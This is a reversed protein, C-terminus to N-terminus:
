DFESDGLGQTMSESNNLNQPSLLWTQKKKKQSHDRELGSWTCNTKEQIM